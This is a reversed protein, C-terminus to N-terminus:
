FRLVSKIYNGSRATSEEMAREIDTFDYEHTILRSQEIKGQSMLRDAGIWPNLYEKKCVMWHNVNLLSLGKTHWLHGDFTRQGHHWAYVGLKGGKGLLRECSSFCSQVGACEFAIEFPENELEELRARGEATSSDILETAGYLGALELNQKKIDAVVLRALPYRSLLQVLLLGMYGAGFLIVSDGPYINLEDAATVVCSVPEVLHTKLEYNPNPHIPLFRGVPINVYEGWTTTTVLDGEKVGAVDSGVKAVIGIGEHGPLIPENHYVGTYKWVEAMCIGNYLTRAQIENPQPDRLKIERLYVHRTGEFFATLSKM